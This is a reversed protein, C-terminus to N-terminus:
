AAKRRAKQKDQGTGEPARGGTSRSRIGPVRSSEPDPEDSALEKYFKDLIEDQISTM